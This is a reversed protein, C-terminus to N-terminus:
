LGSERVYRRMTYAASDAYYSPKRGGNHDRKRGKALATPISVCGMEDRTRQPDTDRGALGSLFANNLVSECVKCPQDLGTCEHQM